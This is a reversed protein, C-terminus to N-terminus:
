ITKYIIGKLIVLTNTLLAMIDAKKITRGMIKLHEQLKM